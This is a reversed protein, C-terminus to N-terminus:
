PTIANWRCILPLKPADLPLGYAQGHGRSCTPTPSHAMAARIRDIDVETAGKIWAAYTSLM